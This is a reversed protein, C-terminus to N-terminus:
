YSKTENKAARSAVVFADLVSGDVVIGTKTLLLDDGFGEFMVHTDKRM